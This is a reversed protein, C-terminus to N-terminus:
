GVIVGLRFRFYRCWSNNSFMVVNSCIVKGSLVVMMFSFSNLFYWLLIVGVMLFVSLIADCRNQVVFQAIVHWGGHLM